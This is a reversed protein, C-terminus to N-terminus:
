KKWVQWWRKKRGAIAVPAPAPNLAAVEMDYTVHAVEIQSIREGALRAILELFGLNSQQLELTGGPEQAIMIIAVTRERWRVPVALLTCADGGPDGTGCGSEPYPHGFKSQGAAAVCRLLETGCQRESDSEPFEVEESRCVRRAATGVILWVAARRAAMYKRAGSTVEGLYKGDSAHAIHSMWDRAVRHLLDLSRTAALAAPPFWLLHGCCPCPADGPPRSPELRVEHGCIPCCNAEGEPTRSAPEM